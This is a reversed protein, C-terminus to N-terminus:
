TRVSCRLTLSHRAAAARRRTKPEVGDGVGAAAFAHGRSQRIADDGRGGACDPECVGRGDRRGGVELDIAVRRLAPPAGSEQDGDVSPRWPLGPTTVAPAIEILIDPLMGVHPLV